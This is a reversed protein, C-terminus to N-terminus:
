DKYFNVRACKTKLFDILSLYEERSSFSAYPLIFAAVNNIHIYIVRDEIINIQEIMSYSVEQKSDPTTEIIKNDLFEIQSFPSYGMKGTKKLYKCNGKIIWSMFPNWLVHFLILLIFTSLSERFADQSFDGRWLVFFGFAVFMLTLIIRLLILQKKGYTTKLMWFYNYNFYDQDTLTVRFQFNM